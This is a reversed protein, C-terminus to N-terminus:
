TIDMLDWALIILMKKIYYQEMLNLVDTAVEKSRFQYSFLVTYTFGDRGYKARAKNIADGAYEYKSSFWNQRRRKEDITQGIYSKGSPSTYMYIIGRIM